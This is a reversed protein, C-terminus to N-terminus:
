LAAHAFFNPKDCTGRAAESSLPRDGLQLPTVLHGGRRPIGRRQGVEYVLVTVRHQRDLQVDGISVRIESRYFLGM